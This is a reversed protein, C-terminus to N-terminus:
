RAASGAGRARRASRPAAARRTRARRRTRCAGALPVPHQALATASFFLSFLAFAATKTTTKM